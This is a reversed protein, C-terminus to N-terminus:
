QEYGNLIETLSFEFPLGSLTDAVTRGNHMLRYEDPGVAKLHMDALADPGIVEGNIGPQGGSRSAAQWIADARAQADAGGIFDRPPLAGGAQAMAAFEADMRDYVPSKRGEMDFQLQALARNVSDASTNMPLPTLAGRVSQMGGKANTQGYKGTGGMVEHLAQRYIDEDIDATPDSRRVRAAYLADASARIAAETQEGEPEDAFYGQLAVHAASTRDAAPPLKVNGAEIVQQGRLVETALTARGGAAQLGGIHSMVPDNILDSVTVSSDAPLSRTLAYALSARTSPDNEIAAVDKLAELETEDLYVPDRVFGKEVLDDSMKVRAQLGKAYAAPDSPDFEPLDPVFLGIDRVYAVADKSLETEAVKLRDKLLQVRETQYKHKVPRNEEGAISARLEAPTMQQLRPQENSLSLKAMAKPHDPHNKAEESALWREDVSKLGGDRVDIIAQLREGVVKDQEKAAKEAATQAASAARDINGQAQVRYRAQVDAPLGAFDGAGSSALFGDPDSAVMEIARANDMDQTLGLKRREGEAADIVGAAVMQDIQEYGQGLLTARMDPDATAGQQTATQAYRIFTAEQQAQRAGLTQKGLSFANRNHLEDFILGFKEVNKPSVRPRGDETQGELYSQRLARSGQRWAAEAQDPDGIEMVELRLNNMEATLDTQFRQAERSLYDNELAEGVARMQDGFQALMAGGQPEEIRVRASRGGDSGAKPVTLTM